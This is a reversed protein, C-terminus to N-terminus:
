MSAMWGPFQRPWGKPMRLGSTRASGAAILMGNEVKLDVSPPLKLINIARQRVFREPEILLRRLRALVSQGMVAQPKQENKRLTGRLQNDVGSEPRYLHQSIEPTESLFFKSYARPATKRL